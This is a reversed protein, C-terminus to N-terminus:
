EKEPQDRKFQGCSNDLPIPRVGRAALSVSDCIAQNTGYDHGVLAKEVRYRESRDQNDWGRAWADRHLRTGEADGYIRYLRDGECLVQMHVRRPDPDTFQKLILKV